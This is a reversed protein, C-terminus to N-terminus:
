WGWGRPTRWAQLGDVGGDSLGDGFTDFLADVAFSGGGEQQGPHCLQGAAVAQCGVDLQNVVVCLDGRQSRHFVAFDSLRM